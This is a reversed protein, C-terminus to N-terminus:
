VGGPGVGPNAIQSNGVINSSQGMGLDAAGAPLSSLLQPNATAVEEDSPQFVIKNLTKAVHKDGLRSLEDIFAKLQAKPMPM